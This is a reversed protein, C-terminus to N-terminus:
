KKIYFVEIKNGIYDMVYIKDKYMTLATWLWLHKEDLQKQQKIKLKTKLKGEWNFILMEKRMRSATLLISNGESDTLMQLASTSIIQNNETTNPENFIKLIQGNQVAIQLIGSPCSILLSRNKQEGSRTLSQCHQHPLHISLISISPKLNDTINFADIRAEFRNLAFVINGEIVIEKAPRVLLQEVLIIGKDIDWLQLRLFTSDLIVANTANLPRLRYISTSIQMSRIIKNNDLSRLEIKGDAKALLLRENWENDIILSLSMYKSEGNFPGFESIKELLFENISPESISYNNNLSNTSNQNNLDTKANQGNEKEIKNLKKNIKETTTTVKPVVPIAIRRKGEILADPQDTALILLSIIAILASILLLSILFYSQASN